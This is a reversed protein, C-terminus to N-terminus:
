IFIYLIILDIKKKMLFNKKIENMHIDIDMNINM